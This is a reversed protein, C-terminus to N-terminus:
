SATREGIATAARVLALHTLGQPLNGLFEGTAPDMEESYLGVDNSLALLAELRAAAEDVHGLRALAEALWFSCALFAGESGSLGDEGRYRLVFAGRGLEREVARVTAALREGDLSECGFLVGLVLSADLEDAGASRVYSQREHSWCRSDIFDRVARAEQRWRSTRGAPLFGRDAMAVARELAIACMMKSQTFHLPESRVEWIGADPQRWSAAVFDVTGALRRAIDADLGGRSVAFLWATQILEGYTDLQVQHAAGNGRRVPRSDRYGALPLPREAARSGGDLRYFVQLRPHSLQSAHMLWWFYARAEDDCGLSLFVDLTFVSDRIWSYRYDWNREGGLQEPLSTTAAAAIAGSPAHVLLKLALASRIVADRWPGDYTRGDAWRRWVSATRDLRAEAEHRAPLVLPEQHAAALVILGPRDPRSEFRGGIAGDDVEPEGADWACVAVADTGASAVPVGARRGIVTRGGGYGFRPEVRWVMPVSGAVCEIRRVLERHPVLGAAPLTMADTVRVVGAATHFTTELVNTSPLYRREVGYPAEPALRFSGGRESDLIAAFTSPSDLDPLCLWDISGDRAVLAATRGDGIIAYDRLPAYGGTRAAGSPRAPFGSFRDHASLSVAKGSHWLPQGSSSRAPQTVPRV